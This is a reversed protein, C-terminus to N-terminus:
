CRLITGREGAYGNLMPEPPGALEAGDYATPPERSVPGASGPSPRLAPLGLSGAASGRAEDSGRTILLALCAAFYERHRETGLRFTVFQCDRMVLTVCREDLFPQISTLIDRRELDQLSAVSEVDALPITRRVENVNLTLNTLEYNLTTEPLIISGDDLLVEICIGRLLTRIFSAMAENLLLAGQSCIADGGTSAPSGSASTGGSGGQGDADDSGGFAWRVRSILRHAQHDISPGTKAATDPMCTLGQMMLAWQSPGPEEAGPAAPTGKSASALPSPCGGDGVRFSQEPETFVAGRGEVHGGRVCVNGWPEFLWFM